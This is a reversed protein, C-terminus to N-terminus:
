YCHIETVHISCAIHQITITFYIFVVCYYAYKYISMIPWTSNWIRLSTTPNYTIVKVTWDFRIGNLRTQIFLLSQMWFREASRCTRWCCNQIGHGEGIKMVDDRYVDRQGVAIGSVIEGYNTNPKSNVTSLSPLQNEFLIIINNGYGQCQLKYQVSNRIIELM